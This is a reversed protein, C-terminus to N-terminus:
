YSPAIVQTHTIYCAEYDVFYKESKKVM